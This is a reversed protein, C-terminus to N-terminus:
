EFPNAKGVGSFTVESEYVKLTKVKVLVSKLEESGLDLSFSPDAPPDEVYYAMLGLNSSVSSDEKNAEFSVTDVTIIRSATEINRLFSLLNSYPGEAIAQLFVRKISKDLKGSTVSPTNLSAAGFQLAKLTVGSDTSIRQIQTMLTPVNDKSPIAIDVLKLNSKLTNQNAILSNLRSSKIKLDKLEDAKVQIESRLSPILSFSPLLLVLVFFLSGVVSVALYLNEVLTNTLRNTKM